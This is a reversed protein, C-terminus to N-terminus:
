PATRWARVVEALMALNQVTGCRSLWSTLMLGAAPLAAALRKGDAVPVTLDDRDHVVRVPRRLRRAPGPVLAPGSM